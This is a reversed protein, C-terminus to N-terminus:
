EAAPATEGAKLINRIALRTFPQRHGRRRRYRTKNKYKFVVVKPDRGQDLVEAVVRAGEVLPQGTLISGDDALMLVDTVEITSGVEATLKEVEIVQKPEVRYQKSGSRIIAYM